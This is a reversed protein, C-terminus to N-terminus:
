LGSLCIKVERQRRVTLGRIRKGKVLDYRLMENCGGILDGSQMLKAPSPRKKWWGKCFAGTNNNMRIAARLQNHRLPDKLIPACATVVKYAVLLDASTMADCEEPTARDTPKVGHATGNCITWVGGLDPYAHLKEGEDARTDLVLLKATALGVVSALAM